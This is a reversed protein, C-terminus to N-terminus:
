EVLKPQIDRQKAEEVGYAEGCYPCKTWKIHLFRDCTPCKNGLKKHCVPCFLFGRRIPEKCAECTGYESSDNSWLEIERQALERNEDIIRKIWLIIVIMGIPVIILIAFIGIQILIWLDM